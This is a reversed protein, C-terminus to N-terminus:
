RSPPKDIQSDDGTVESEPTAIEEILINTKGILRWSIQPLLVLVECDLLHNPRDGIQEWIPKGNPTVIRRESQMQYNYDDPVDSPRTNRGKKILLSLMDKLRLNSFYFLKVRKQGVSEIVPMSYPRMEQRIGMTTKIRWPFENRADGRTATWGNTACAALVEDKRDGADVFVNAPHVMNKRETDKVDNWSLLYGCSILRSEGEGDCSRVVYWFGNKQCDVGMFRMRVFDARSRIEATLERGSVTKGYVFGGEMDWDTGLKYDSSATQLSIEDPEEKFTAGLRKQVFERWATNDGREASAKAEIYEIALEGWSLGWQACLSNYFYTRRWAPALPNMAIYKGTSNLEARVRNSDKFTTDCSSCKYIMGKKVKDLNWGSETKADAPFILQEWKWPQRTKCTPCEFTWHRCDGSNVFETWDHGEVSGQSVLVIKSQYKYVTLRAMAAKITGPNWLWVEDGLIYRISRSQLNLKNNAGFVWCTNGRFQIPGSKPIGEPGINEKMIPTANWLLRLRTELFDSANVNTERFILTPGPALVPFILSAAEILFTKSMQVSGQVGVELVVPDTLCELPEKLWPSNSIKFSGSKPSYPISKVHHELFPVADRYPDPKLLSRLNRDLLSENDENMM